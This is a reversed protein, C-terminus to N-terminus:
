RAADPYKNEHATHKALKDTFQTLPDGTFIIALHKKVFAKEIPM